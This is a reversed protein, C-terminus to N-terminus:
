AAAKVLQEGTEADVAAATLEGYMLPEMMRLERPVATQQLWTRWRATEGRATGLHWPYVLVTRSHISGHEETTIEVRVRRPQVGALQHAQLGGRPGFEVMGSPQESDPGDYLHICSLDTSGGWQADPLEPRHVFRAPDVPLGSGGHYLRNRMSEHVARMSPWQEMVSAGIHVSEEDKVPSWIGYITM